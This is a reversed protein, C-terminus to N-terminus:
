PQAELVRGITPFDDLRVGDGIFRLANHLKRGLFPMAGAESEAMEVLTPLGSEISELVEVTNARRGECVWQVDEVQQMTFLLGDGGIPPRWFTWRICDILATVGPNRTIAIGAAEGAEEPMNGTRREKAPKTLFPCARACWAACDAHCPPEASTRNVLCMPGAVFTGRPGGTRNRLLREGCVFCLQGQIADVVRQPEMLRFDPAGDVWPVFWPVPRGVSDRPLRRMRSPLDPPLQVLMM